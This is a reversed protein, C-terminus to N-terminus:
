ADAPAFQYAAERRQLIGANAFGALTSETWAPDIRLESAIQSALWAKEQRAHVLLLVELQMVSDIHKKLFQSIQEPIEPHEL